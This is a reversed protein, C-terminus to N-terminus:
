LFIVSIILVVSITFSVIPIAVYLSFSLSAFIIQAFDASWSKAIPLIVADKTKPFSPSFIVILPREIPSM